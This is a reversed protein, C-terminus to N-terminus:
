ALAFVSRSIEGDQIFDLNLWYKLFSLQISDAEVREVALKQVNAKAVDIQAWPEAGRRFLYLSPPSSDGDSALRDREAFTVTQTVGAARLSWAVGITFDLHLRDRVRVAIALADLGAHSWSQPNKWTEDIQDVHLDDWRDIGGNSSITGMWKTIIEERDM